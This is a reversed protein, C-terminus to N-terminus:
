HIPALHSSSGSPDGGGPPTLGAGPRAKPAIRARKKAGGGVQILAAPQLPSSSVRIAGERVPEARMKHSQITPSLVQAGGGLYLIPM